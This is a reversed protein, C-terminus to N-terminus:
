FGSGAPPGVGLGAWNLGIHVGCHPVPSCSGAPSYCHRLEAYHPLPVLYDRGPYDDAGPVFLRRGARAAVPGFLPAHDGRFPGVAGSVQGLDVQVVLRCAEAQVAQVVPRRAEVGPEPVAAEVLESDDPARM